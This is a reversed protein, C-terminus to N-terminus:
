LAAVGLAAIMLAYLGIKEIANHRREEQLIELRLDSIRRQARGAELMGALAKQLETIQAAHAAAIETNGEAATQFKLLATAGQLDFTVTDESEGM